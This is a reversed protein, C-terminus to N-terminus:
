TRSLGVTTPKRTKFMSLNGGVYLKQIRVGGRFHGKGERKM